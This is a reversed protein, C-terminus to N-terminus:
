YLTMIQFIQYDKNPQPKNTVTSNFVTVEKLQNLKRQKCNVYKNKFDVSKEKLILDVPSIANRTTM